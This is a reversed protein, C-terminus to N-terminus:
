AVWSVFAPETLVTDDGHASSMVTFEVVAVAWLMKLRHVSPDVVVWGGTGDAVSVDLRFVFAIEEHPRLSVPLAMPNQLTAEVRVPQDNERVPHLPLTGPVALMSTPRSGAHLTVPDVTVTRVNVSHAGQGRVSLSVLAHRGGRTEGDQQISPREVTLAKSVTVAVPKELPLHLVFHGLLDSVGQPPDCLHVDFCLWLSATHQGECYPVRCRFRINGVATDADDVTYEQLVFSPQNVVAQNGRIWRSQGIGLAHLSDFAENVENLVTPSAELRKAAILPSAIATSSDAPTVMSNALSASLVRPRVRITVGPGRPFEALSNPFALDCAVASPSTNDFAMAATVEFPGSPTLVLEHVPQHIRVLSVPVNM